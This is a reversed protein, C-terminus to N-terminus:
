QNLQEIVFARIEEKRPIVWTKKTRPFVLAPVMRLGLDKFRKFDTAIDFTVIHLGRFEAQLEKLIKETYACRPCFASKYYELTM